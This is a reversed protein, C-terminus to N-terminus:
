IPQVEPPRIGWTRYSRFILNKWARHCNQSQSYMTVRSRVACIPLLWGLDCIKPSCAGNGGGRLVGKQEESNSLTPVPSGMQFPQFSSRWSDHTMAALFWRPKEAPLWSTQDDQGVQHHLTKFRPPSLQVSRPPRLHHCSLDKKNEGRDKPFIFWNQIMKVWIKWM